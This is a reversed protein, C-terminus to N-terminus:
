NFPRLTLRIFVERGRSPLCAVEDLGLANRQHTGTEPVGLLGGTAATFQTCNGAMYKNTLNKGILAIEWRDDDPGFSVNANIKAFAPQTVGPLGNYRGLGRLFKSSYQANVGLRLLMDNNVPMDYDLGGSITWDAAKPLPAGSLDQGQYRLLSGDDPDYVPVSNCGDEIRQGGYCPADPFHQFRAHTWNVALNAKLGPVAPPAYTADFEIGYVKSSAANITRIIARGTDPDTENAGVQLGDYKYYYAALNANLARDPTRFKIGAEGGRVREDGFSIDTDPIPPNGMIFSGSKYGQKLAAFVTLNDTPTYTITAEPSWNKARLDPQIISIPIPNGTYSTLVSPDDHRREDTYRAGLALELTEAPKYRVQGFASVTEISVDNIGAVLVEPFGLAMNAGVYIRNQVRADQYYGGLMFNVPIHSFDSEVRVEQTFDRRKFQNDAILTPGAYGSNIGNIMGDLKFDFYGTTSTLSIDSSMDYGIELTGFTAKTTTFPVGNNRAEPFAGKDVDVIYITRDLKCNENPNLFQIPEGGNIAPGATVVGDTGEPCSGLQGGGGIVRKRTNNIKLRVRVDADPKWLLTGRLIHEEVANYRRSSPTKGGLGPVGNLGAGPAAFGKNFFYGDDDSYMGALRLGVTDSLPTSYILEGRKERAEVGYSLRAILERENGPDATTVAIVGGPSNKGFFLAQPGKLVQVSAMDFFGVGYTAGQSLQLGDLNLSVSQDVGGDLTSTGVGRLSLQTGVTLVQEGIQLGPVQQAIGELNVVQNKSLAESSLVSAVVPVKLISEERKRATVIIDGAESAAIDDSNQGYAPLPGMLLIAAVSASCYYM